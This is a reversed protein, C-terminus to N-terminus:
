LKKPDIDVSLVPKPSLPPNIDVSLVPKRSLQANIDLEDMDKSLKEGLGGNEVGGNDEVGNFM